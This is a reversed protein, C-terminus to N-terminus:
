GVQGGTPAQGRIAELLQAVLATAREESSFIRISNDRLDVGIVKTGPRDALFRMLVTAPSAEWNSTDLIVVDPDLQQVRENVRDVEAEYGVVDLGQQQRLWVELGPGFLRHPSVILVRAM